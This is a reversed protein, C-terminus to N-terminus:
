GRYGGLENALVWAVVAGARIEETESTGAAVSSSGTEGKEPRAEIIARLRRQWLEFNAERLDVWGKAAWRDRDAATMAVTDGAVEPIRLRPGRRLTDGDSELIPIGLSVITDSLGARRDLLDTVERSLEAPTAQLAGPITGRCMGILEAEWLLKSLEPPGLQGLAVSHTKTERELWELRTLV